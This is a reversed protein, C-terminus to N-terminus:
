HRLSVWFNYTLELGKRNNKDARDSCRRSAFLARSSSCQSAKPVSKSHAFRYLRKHTRHFDYVRGFVARAAIRADHLYNNTLYLRASEPALKVINNYIIHFSHSMYALFYTPRPRFRISSSTLARKPNIM